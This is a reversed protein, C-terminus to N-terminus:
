DPADAKMHEVLEHMEQKVQEWPILKEQKAAEGMRLLEDLGLSALDSLREYEEIDLLVAAPRGRQTVVIARQTGRVAKIVKPLQAQVDSVPIIDSSRFTM